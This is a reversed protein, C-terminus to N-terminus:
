GADGLWEALAGPALYPNSAREEALTSTPRDGYDHGPYVITEPPLAALRETLTKGMEAPDSGPLDVRGCSGVFLVDGTFLSGPGGDDVLYCTSGPTHGPAHLCRVSVSGLQLVADADHLRLATAPLRSVRALWPAEERHMHISVGTREHLEHAGEVMMGFLDGGAHDPHWHTLLAGALEYGRSRVAQVLEDVAWAPDVLWARRTEPDGLFYVFNIMQAATADRRAFDRGALWQEVIPM